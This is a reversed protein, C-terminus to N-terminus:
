HQLVKSATLNAVSISHGTFKHSMSYGLDNRLFSATEFDKWIQIKGTTDIPLQHLVYNPVRPFQGETFTFTAAEKLPKTIGNFTIKWRSAPHTAPAATSLLSLFAISNDSTNFLM